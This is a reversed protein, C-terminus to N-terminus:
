SIYRNQPRSIIQPIAEAVLTGHKQKSYGYYGLGYNTHFLMHKVDNFVVGLLKNRDVAKFARDISRYSTKGRRIVMLLGDSLGTVVRADAIPSYPPADLIITDFETQLSEILQKMKRMSLVEIANPAVGGTTMFYLNAIRRICCHPRLGANVLYQLLGPESTAGLYEELSPRRLDCDVLLVRRGPDMAFSFALAASILSKGDGSEPSSVTIVKPISNAEALRVKLNKFQESIFSGEQRAVLLKEDLVANTVLSTLGEYPFSAKAVMAGTGQVPVTADINARARFTSCDPGEIVKLRLLIGLIKKLATRDLHTAALLGGVTNPRQKLEGLVSLEQPSWHFVSLDISGSLVIPVDGQTELPSAWARSLELLLQPFSIGAPVHYSRLCDSFSDVWFDSRLAYEILDASQRRAAAGVEAPNVIKRRVVAEGFFIKKGRAESDAADLESAPISRKKALYDGLRYGPLTSSVAEIMGERFFVEVREGTKDTLALLGTQAEQDLRRIEDLIPTTASM